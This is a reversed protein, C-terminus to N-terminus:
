RFGTPDRRQQANRIQLEIGLGIVYHNLEVDAQPGMEGPNGPQSINRSGVRGFEGITQLGQVDQNVTQGQTNFSADDVVDLAFASTWVCACTLGCMFAVSKLSM